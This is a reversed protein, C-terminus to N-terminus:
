RQSENGRNMTQRAIQPLPVDAAVKSQLTGASGKETERKNTKWSLLM